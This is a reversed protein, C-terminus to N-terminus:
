RFKVGQREKYFATIKEDTYDVYHGKNCVGGLVGLEVDGPLNGKLVKRKKCTTCYKIQTSM